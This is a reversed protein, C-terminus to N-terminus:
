RHLRLERPGLGYLDGLARRMSSSSGFGAEVAIDDIDRDDFRPDQLLSRAVRARERRLEGAVSSGGEAFVDQLHRLSVGVQQAILGPTLRLDARHEAIEALARERVVARPTGPVAGRGQRGLLLTGAMDLVLRDVTRSEGETVAQEGTVVQALFAQMAQEPVTLETYVGVEDAIMPVYPLVAERPIRAVVFRWDGLFRVRSPLGSPAVMLPGRSTRWAAGDLYEFEGSQVFIIDITPVGPRVPRREIESGTGWAEIVLIVGFARVRANMGLDGGAGRVGERQMDGDAYEIISREPLGEIDVASHNM